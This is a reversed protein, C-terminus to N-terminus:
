YIGRYPEPDCFWKLTVFPPKFCLTNVLLYFGSIAFTNKFRFYGVFVSALFQYYKLLNQKAFTPYHSSFKGYNKTTTLERYIFYLTITNSRMPSIRNLYIYVKKKKKWFSYDLFNLWGRDFFLLWSWTRTPLLLWSRDGIERFCLLTENGFVAVVPMLYASTKAAFIAKQVPVIVAQGRELRLLKDSM